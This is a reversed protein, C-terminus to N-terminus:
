RSRSSIRFATSRGIWVTHLCRLRPAGVRSRDLVPSAMPRPLRAVDVLGAPLPARRAPSLQLSSWFFLAEFRRKGRRGTTMM